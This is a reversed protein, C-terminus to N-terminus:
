ARGIGPLSVSTSPSSFVEKFILLKEYSESWLAKDKIMILLQM